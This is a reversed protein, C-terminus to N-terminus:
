QLSTALLGFCATHYSESAFKSLFIPQESECYFCKASDLIQLLNTQSFRNLENEEANFLCLVEGFIDASKMYFLPIDM